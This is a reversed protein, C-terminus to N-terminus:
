GGRRQEMMVTELGGSLKSGNGSVRFRSEENLPRMRKV